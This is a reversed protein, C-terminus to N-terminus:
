LLQLLFMAAAFVLAGPGFLGLGDRTRKCQPTPQVLGLAWGAPLSAALAQSGRLVGVSENLMWREFSAPFNGRCCWGGM